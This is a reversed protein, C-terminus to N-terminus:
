DLTSIRYPFCMREAPTAYGVFFRGQLTRVLHTSGVGVSATCSEPRQVPEKPCSAWMCRLAGLLHCTLLHERLHKLRGAEQVVNAWESMISFGKGCRPTVSGSSFFRGCWACIFGCCVSTWSHPGLGGCGVSSAAM